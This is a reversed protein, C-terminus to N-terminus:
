KEAALLGCLSFIREVSAQSAPATPDDALSTVLKYSTRRATWFELSNDILSKEVDTCRKHLLTLGTTPGKRGQVM